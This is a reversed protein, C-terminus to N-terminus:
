DEKNRLINSLFNVVDIIDDSSALNVVGSLAGCNRILIQVTGVENQWLELTDGDKDTVYCKSPKM